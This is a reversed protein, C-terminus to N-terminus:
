DGEVVQVDDVYAWTNYYGDYRTWLEFRVEVWKGSWETLDFVLPHVEGHSEPPPSGFWPNDPRRWGSDKPLGGCGPARDPHNEYNDRLALAGGVYVDFSDGLKNGTAPTWTLHDYTVVRYWFTLTPTVLDDPVFIEQSAVSARDGLLGPNPANCYGDDGLLLHHSGEKPDTSVVQPAPLPADGSVVWGSTDGMEFGGNVIAVSRYRKVVLPLNVRFPQRVVTTSTTDNNNEGNADEQATSTIEVRNLITTGSLVDTNVTVTYVITGTVGAVM